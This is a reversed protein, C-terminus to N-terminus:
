FDLHRKVNCLEPKREETGSVLIGDRLRLRGPLVCVGLHSFAPTGPMQGRLTFWSAERAARRARRPSPGPADTLAQQPPKKGKGQSVDEETSGTRDGLGRSCAARSFEKSCWLLWIVHVGLPRRTPESDRLLWSRTLPPLWPGARPLLQHKHNEMTGSARLCKQRGTGTGPSRLDSVVASGWARPPM